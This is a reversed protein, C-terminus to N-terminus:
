VYIQKSNHFLYHKLDCDLGCLSLSFKCPQCIYKFLKVQTCQLASFM